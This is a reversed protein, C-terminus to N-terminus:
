ANEEFAKQKDAFDKNNEENVKAWDSFSAIHPVMMVGSGEKADHTIEQNEGFGRGRGKTKLYYIIATLSDKDIAKYLKSEAFDLAINQIDAVADSFEKDEGLYVYYTKRSVNCKKCATTVVGLSQELAFLLAKKITDSTNGAKGTKKAM